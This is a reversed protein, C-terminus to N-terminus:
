KIVGLKKSVDEACKRLLDQYSPDNDDHEEKSKENCAKKCSKSLECITPAAEQHQAFSTNVFLIISLSNMLVVCRLRNVIIREWQSLAKTVGDFSPTLRTVVLLISDKVFRVGDNSPTVLASECILNKMFAVFSNDRMSDCHLLRSNKIELSSNPNFFIKWV